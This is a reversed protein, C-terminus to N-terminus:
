SMIGGFVTETKKYIYDNFDSICSEMQEKIRIKRKNFDEESLQELGILETAQLMYIYFVRHSAKLQM